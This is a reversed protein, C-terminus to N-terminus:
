QKRHLFIQTYYLVGQRNRVIGIGTINYNGEINDRHGPSNLWASVVEKASMKGDAVNEAAGTVRKLQKILAYMREEFNDHNLSITKFALYKSHAIAAPVITDNMVLPTLGKSTRHENVYTLIEQQLHTYDEQAQTKTCVTFNALLLAFLVFRFYGSFSYFSM